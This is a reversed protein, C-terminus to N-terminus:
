FIDFVKCSGNAPKQLQGEVPNSKLRFNAHESESGSLPCGVNAHNGEVSSLFAALASMPPSLELALVPDYGPTYITSVLVFEDCYVTRLVPM